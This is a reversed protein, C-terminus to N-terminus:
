FSNAFTTNGALSLWFGGCVLVWVWCIFIVCPFTDETVIDATFNFVSFAKM